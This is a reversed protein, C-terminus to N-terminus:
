WKWGALFQCFPSRASRDTELFRHLQKMWDLLLKRQVSEHSKGITKRIGSGSSSKSITMGAGLLDSHYTSSGAEQGERTRGNSSMHDQKARTFSFQTV